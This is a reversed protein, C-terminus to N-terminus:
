ILQNSLTSNEKVENLYLPTDIIGTIIFYDSKLNENRSGDPMSVEVRAGCVFGGTLDSGKEGLAEHENEPLRGEALIFQNIEGDRPISHIRTVLVDNGYSVMADTFRSGQVTKVEENQAIAQVDKDDFGYNSYLTLDKLKMEDSYRDVSVAMIDSSGRVGTFFAVGISVIAAVALFRSMSNRILRVLSKLLTKHM